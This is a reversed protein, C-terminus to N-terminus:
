SALRRRQHRLAGKEAIDITGDALIRRVDATLEAHTPERGLKEKLAAYITLPKRATATSM